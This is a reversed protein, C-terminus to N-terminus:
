TFFNKVFVVTYVCSTLLEIENNTTYRKAAISWDSTKWLTIHKDTTGALLNEGDPSFNAIKILQSDQGSRPGSELLQHCKM